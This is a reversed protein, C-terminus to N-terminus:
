MGAKLLKGKEDYILGFVYKPEAKKSKKEYVRILIGYHSLRYIGEIDEDFIASAFITPSLEWVLPKVGGMMRSLADPNVDYTEKRIKEVLEADLQKPFIDILRIAKDAHHRALPAKHEKTRKQPKKLILM